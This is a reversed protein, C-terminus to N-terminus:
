QQVVKNVIRTRSQRGRFTVDSLERPLFVNLVVAVILSANLAITIM